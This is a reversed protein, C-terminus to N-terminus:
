ISYIIKTINVYEQAGFSIKFAKEVTALLTKITEYKYNNACIFEEKYKLDAIVTGNQTREIACALHLMLGVLINENIEIDNKLLSIYLEKFSHIYTLADIKVNEEIVEKMNSIVIMNEIRDKLTSLKEKKFIESTSIYLFDRDEPEFSSIVSILNKEKKIKKLKENFKLKDNIEMTIVDINKQELDFKEEAISKLRVATGKGTICATIIINKKIEADTNFNETYTREYHPSIQFCAEYVEDLSAKLLAKRTAELVIATSVMAITKVPIKTSEHIMDGFLVLSGMDVLLIVGKNQNAKEVLKTINKLAVEPNQELPMDYGIAYNEGLLRNAVDAISKAASDGHMAVIVGVSGSNQNKESHMCLFMTIYGVEDEPILVNFEQEIKNKLEFALEYEKAYTMKIEELQNNSIDKGLRVREITGSIHISLGHLIRTDFEIGLKKNAIALFGSVINVIKKDVIKYLEDLSEKDMNFLYKKFYADIDLDMILKIDNESIGKNELMQRKEELVEYFNSIKDNEKNVAILDDTYFEIEDKNILKDIEAMSEKYKFLGRLIYQPLDHSHICIKDEYEMMHNLFAKSCCLKIDSKLQGINNSCAYLLLARLSNATVNIQKKISTAEVKLFNEILSYREQLSREQLSPLKIMMPIRRAFTNLLSTEVNETTACIILVNVRNNEETEGLRRYMGKDILYFLMEQGEAPLRHVEDLFLIGEHAKEVLGVRDRDAGTYAGKRVGFIQSLLLQPNNAYDACNFSIFPANAKMKGIQKAYKYMTEAFMSKGTGTEGLILTHLGSPPYIIAARAQQLVSKLSLNAGIINDFVDEKYKISKSSIVEELDKDRIKYLVPKGPIKEIKGENYLKNLDSSTNSRQTNMITAIEVASFGIKKSNDLYNKISLKKITEYVVDIKKM